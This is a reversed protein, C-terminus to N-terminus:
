APTDADALRGGGDRQSRLIRFRGQLAAATATQRTSAEGAPPTQM